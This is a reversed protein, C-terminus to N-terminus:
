LSQLKPIRFNEKIRLNSKKLDQVPLVVSLRNSGPLFDIRHFNNKPNLFADKVDQLSNIKRENINLVIANSLSQYGINIQDPIVQTVLVIRNKRIEELNERNFKVYKKNGNIMVTNNQELFMRLRIPARSKWNKGWM